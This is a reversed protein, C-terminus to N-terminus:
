ADYIYGAVAEAQKADVKEPAGDPMNRHIFRILKEIPWDGVLPDDYKGKVGQGERGHCKACQERYIERGALSQPAGLLGQQSVWLCLVPLWALRQVQRARMM